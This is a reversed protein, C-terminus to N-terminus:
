EVYKYQFPAMFATSLMYSTLFILFLVYLLLNTFFFTRGQKIWKQRLLSRVLPHCLLEERKYQVQSFYLM